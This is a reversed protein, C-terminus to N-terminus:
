VCSPKFMKKDGVFYYPPNCSGATPPAPVARESRDTREPKAPAPPPPPPPDKKKAVQQPPPSARRSVQKPPAPRPRPPATVEPPPRKAVPAIQEVPTITPRVVPKAPQAIPHAVTRDGTPAAEIRSAAERRPADGDRGLFATGFALAIGVLACAGIMALPSQLLAPRLSPTPPEAAAIPPQEATTTRPLEPLQLLASGQQVTALTAACLRRWSAEEAAIIKDRGDLFEKGVSKVWTAVESSPAPTVASTLAVEMDVATAWRQLPDMALGRDVVLQLDSLREWDDGLWAKEPELVEAMGPVNGRLIREIQEAQGMSSPNMRRGVLLEWLMVAVAYIDSQRTAKGRIQEPSAYAIKGKFMGARTVHAADAAKAVGFDLLRATGDTAIMVNQPSVDRHVIRLPTGLEDTTEHAAHLGALVQCAISVAITLPIRASAEFLTRQLWSLPVGHVYDQVLVVENQMTVVDLVPVVNRHHVKSAVRAEDLFMAVFDRDQALEPHLRKAAVIRSFGVDGVLHAIHITAMGGRAIQRHLQYRGVTISKENESVELM